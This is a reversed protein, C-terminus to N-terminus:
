FGAQTKLFNDVGTWADIDAYMTENIVLENNGNDKHSSFVGRRPTPDVVERGDKEVFVNCEKIAINSISQRNGNDAVVTHKTIKISHKKYTLM